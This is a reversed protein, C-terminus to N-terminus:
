RVNAEKTAQLSASLWIRDGWGMRERSLLALTIELRMYAKFLPPVDPIM